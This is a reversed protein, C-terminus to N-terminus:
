FKGSFILKFSSLIIKVAHLIKRLFKENNGIGHLRKSFFVNFRILKQKTKKAALLLYIDISFDNPLFNINKIINKNFFNPQAHIDKLKSLFLLSIILTMGYTFFSDFLTRKLRYGKIFLNKAGNKIYIEYATLVDNLDTQLDAHTYCILDNRSKLIGKKIANGFGINKDIFVLELNKIKKNERVKILEKRTEDNSGNDILIADFSVRKNLYIIQNTLEDINNQENYCPIILSFKNM